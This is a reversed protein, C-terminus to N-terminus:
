CIQELQKCNSNSNRTLSYVGASNKAQLGEASTSHLCSVRWTHQAQLREIAVCAAYWVMVRGRMCVDRTAAQQRGSHKM